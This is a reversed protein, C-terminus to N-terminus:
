EGVMWMKNDLSQWANGNNNIQVFGGRDDQGQDKAYIDVRNWLANSVSALIVESEPLATAPSNFIKANVTGGAVLGKTMTLGDERTLIAPQPFGTSYRAWGNVLGFNWWPLTLADPTVICLGSLSLWTNGTSNMKWCIDGNPFVSVYGFADVCAVNVHNQLHSGYATSPLSVMPLDGTTTSGGKILGRTWVFGYPDKWYGAKGWQPDGYDVWSNKFAGVPFDTWTAVGAAPFAIGDLSIYTNATWGARVRIEGNAQVAIAKAADGNNIPFIMAVDPRYGVPLTAIVTDTTATGYGILGSLLVIGSPFKQFRPTSWRRPSMGNRLNYSLWGNQLYPTLDVKGGFGEEGSHGLIVWTSGTWQISVVRNGSRESKTIWQYATASLAAWTTGNWIRLKAPGPGLYNPDLLAKNIQGVYTGTVAKGHVITKRASMEVRVRDGVILGGALTDPTIPLPASDGDMQISLPATGKVTAWKFSTLDSIDPMM